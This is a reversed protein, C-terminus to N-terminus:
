NYLYPNKINLKKLIKIEINKMENFDKIKKHNFGNLHLFSHVLLHSLHDYFSIRNFKADKKIMEASLFIDTFKTKKFNKFNVESVFTLVDTTTKQKRFKTNMKKILKNETLIINCIYDVKFNFNLDKKFSLIKKTIFNVSKFRAPWHKSQCTINFKIM